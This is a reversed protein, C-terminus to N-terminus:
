APGDGLEALLARARIRYIFDDDADAWLEIADELFRRASEEDGEARLVRALMFKANAYSPYVLLVDELQQRAKDTAGAGLYLQAINVSLEALSQSDIFSGIISQGLMTKASDVSEIAAELENDWISIQAQELAMIPRYLEPLQERMEYSSRAWRRFEDRNGAAAHISSYIFNLYSSLPPQLQTAVADLNAAAEEYRGVLLPLAANQAEIQIIRAAPPMLNKALENARAYTARTQEVKGRTLSLEAAAFLVQLEQQPLLDDRGLAQVRAEAEAFLGRRAEIRMLGLEAELPDGALIAADELAAQAEDLKGQAQYQLALLGHAASSDPVLELYRELLDIAAAYNRRQQEIEAKQLYVSYDNPRLELLRDYALLARELSEPTGRFRSFQAINQLASTNNPQVQSWIQLV